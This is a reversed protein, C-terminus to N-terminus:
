RPRDETECRAILPALENQLSPNLKVAARFDQLAPESKKLALYAKGREVFLVAEPSPCQLARTYDAIAAEHQGLRIRVRGCNAFDGAGQSGLSVAKLYDELAQEWEEAREWTWGRITYAPAYNPHLDVIKGYDEAAGRFEKQHERAWGRAYYAPACSPDIGIARTADEIMGEEDSLGCRAWSRTVWAAVCSPNLELARSCAAKAATFNQQKERIWGLLYHAQSLQPMVEGILVDLVQVAGTYDKRSCRIMAKLLWVQEDTKTEALIENCIKEAEDYRGEAIAIAAQSCRFVPSSEEKVGRLQAYRRFSAIAAQKHPEARYERRAFGEQEPLSVELIGPGLMIDMYLEFRCLGLRYWAGPMDPDLEITRNFSRIAEHWFGRSQWIEGQIYHGAALEPHKILAARSLTEAENLLPEWQERSSSRVRWLAKAEKVSEQARRSLEAAELAGRRSAEENRREEARKLNGAVIVAVGIGIALLLVGLAVSLAVHKLMRKRLRYGLGVPKALVPEGDLYRELEESLELATAYRRSPDKELCRLIINELDSDVAPNLRRVPVPDREVIMKFLDYPDSSRFPPQGACVEYLTAGLSYVDSRADLAAGGGRVQEPSMYPPTGVTNGAVSDASNVATEKALGFDVVYPRFAPATLWSNLSRSSKSAPGAKGEIIINQPKLDRHVVGNEHAHHVGLCADRMLRVLLRLDEGPFANLTPGEVYQMAIYPRGGHDGVDYIAAINPHSLKAVTRAERQFRALEGLNDIRLFKLAVWRHLDRDWARWVEGMGGEGLKRVRVYRGLVNGPIRAAAAAEPPLAQPHASAESGVPLSSTTSRMLRDCQEATLYGKGVLLESLRPAPKKNGHSQLEYRLRLCERVQEPTVFGASVVLQGFRLDSESPVDDSM